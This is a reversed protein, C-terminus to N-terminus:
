RVWFNRTVVPLLIAFVVASGVAFAISTLAARRWHAVFQVVAALFFFLICIAYVLLLYGASNELGFRPRDADTIVLCFWIPVIVVYVRFPFLLLSFWAQRSAPLIHM